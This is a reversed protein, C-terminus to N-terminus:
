RASLILIWDNAKDGNDGPTRLRHLGENSIPSGAVSTFDGTTPNYWRAAISGPFSAANVTLERTETGTSPIYTVSLAHDPTLATLCSAADQGYGDTIIAHDEEPRLEPWPLGLFCRRLRTMDQSGPGNLAQIWTLNVPFLGPGDFHWIPNNGFFQGCGGGLMTWYAQRRIQNPISNHEGEYTSEILVFPRVPKRAYEALAPRFLAKDYSYVTDLTLWEEAGLLAVASTEPAAHVAMLHNTDQERIARGLETIAWRDAMEPTYDGGLIWVINPISRFRRGIFNGYARLKEKGGARIERFFGEDGGGYGLYAAALWVVIGRQNAREIVKAAFDFYDDNPTSFDGPTNFPALGSRNKPPADCFKHEILNVIISNFGRNRRDDLYREIDQERVQAILSWATDGIILFPQNDRSVLYRGTTGIRLPGIEQGHARAPNGVLFGLILLSAARALAGRGDAKRALRTSVKSTREEPCM